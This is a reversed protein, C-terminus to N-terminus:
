ASKRVKRRRKSVKYRGAGFKRDFIDGGWFGLTIAVATLYLPVPTKFWPTNVINSVISTTPKKVSGSVQATTQVYATKDNKDTLRFEIRYADSFAYQFTVTRYGATPISLLTDESGDGWNINVAYPPTGGWTLIGMVQQIGPFFLRPLCVVAIHPETTVPINIPKFSSCDGLDPQVDPIVSPNDPLVPKKQPQNQVPTSITTSKATINIVPTAPGSQNIDDYNLASLVNAGLQIQIMLNFTGATTCNTSGAISDNDKVVVFTGVACTGNVEIIDKDTLTQGEVPSTIVAGITPAPGNVIANVSVTGDSTVAHVANESFLLLFGVLVLIVALALHSTHRHHILKGTHKHDVLRFHRLGAKKANVLVVKRSSKAIRKNTKKSTTSKIKTQTKM